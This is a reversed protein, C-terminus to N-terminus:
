RVSGVVFACGLGRGRFCGSRIGGALLGLRRADL